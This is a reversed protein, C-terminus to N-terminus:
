CRQVAIGCRQAISSLMPLPVQNWGPIHVYFGEHFAIDIQRRCHRRSIDPRLWPSLCNARTTISSRRAALLRNAELPLLLIGPRGFLDFLDFVQAIGQGRCRQGDCRRHELLQLKQALTAASLEGTRQEVLRGGADFFRTTPLAGSGLFRSFARDIDLLVNKLEFAQGSLYGRIKDAREGQNAFVFQVEPHRKQAAGLVPM